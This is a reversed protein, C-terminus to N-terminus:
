SAWHVLLGVSRAADLLRANYALFTDSGVRLATALFGAARDGESAICVGGVGQGAVEVFCM